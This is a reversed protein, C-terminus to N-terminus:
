GTHTNRLMSLALLAWAVIFALGGLPTIMGLWRLGSISLAYLSGSFLVIGALMLWGSWRLLRVQPQREAALGVIALGL